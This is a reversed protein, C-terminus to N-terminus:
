GTRPELGLTPASPAREPAGEKPHRAEWLLISSAVRIQYRIPNEGVGKRPCVGLWQALRVVGDLDARMLHEIRIVM